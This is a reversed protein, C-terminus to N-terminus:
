NSKFIFQPQEERREKANQYKVYKRIMDADLGVTGACAQRRLITVGM